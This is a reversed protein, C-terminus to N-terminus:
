GRLSDGTLMWKWSITVVFVYLFVLNSLNITLDFAGATVSYFIFILIFIKGSAAGENVFGYLALRVLGYYLALMLLVGLIGIDILLQIASSHVSVKETAIGPYHNFYQEYGQYAGSAAQGLYGWGFLFNYVPFTGISDLASEWVYHRNSLPNGGLDFMAGVFLFNVESLAYILFTLLPYSAVLFFALFRTLYTARKLQLFIFYAAVSSITFLLAGRSGSLLLAIFSSLFLIFNSFNRSHLLYAISIASSLGAIIGFGNVGLAIPFLIRDIDLGLSSLIRSSGTDAYSSVQPSIGLLFAIVNVAVYVQLGRWCMAPSAGVHRWMPLGALIVTWMAMIAFMKFGESTGNLYSRLYATLAIIGVLIPIIARNSLWVKVPLKAAAPLSLLLFYLSLVLIGPVLYMGGLSLM